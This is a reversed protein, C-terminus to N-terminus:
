NGSRTVGFSESKFSWHSHGKLIQRLEGMSPDWLKITDDDSNSALLQSDSSFAVSQVEGSHGELTQHLEGTSPDWLKITKDQSSSALLQGDPSFAVSQVWASHGELTQRLKGTSPDWLKITEDSSGSALLQGDPSFAVSNVEGSHGELTQRLEGTSPNWLKITKDWSSSALLQSDPSFAISALLQSDPSFAVSQVWDSHGEITQRLEGTSPDWLKITKDWSSSALLQSDPSFAVSRVWNSHGTLTQRLESTSPDWLKITKDRSCSALLQSDPSFAVSRVTGSHGKITQRLEGTSPDWLKITNDWSSSALLQGDPSFAVSQVWASHGELTQYLKGTSPDWLKITKDWSSSALLQSDPSFAVSNVEGSHGKLTLHLKGTSPNWLEGSHGKLTLHLKGTSPNWLKITKDRSCSALLQSDSSFTVSNVEGSHGKLTLHLKGTSPNWLKITKDRSCSALLQSDPLFAAMNVEGSHGELTQRLEGTSPDWLKITYDWSSSALLQSDSSFAVSQVWHSHGEITQHLDGTSPDWLKITNDYSGSALLQGNPSFAVSQVLGSHGELTQLEGSWAKEVKPLRRWTLLESEFSKRIASTKPAFMLGSSYLQLPATNAIQRNMLIFRWADYLFKVIEPDKDNEIVSQLVRIIGVAESIIGLLSMAEMWHLFHVKLFSFAQILENVPDYSQILHHVWYRCAYQLEPPLHSDIIYKNIESRLTTDHHINCINKRLGYHECQMVKLCQTTLKQHVEKESIWFPNGKKVNDLLFDRFSLHLIRVPQDLETPVDLVSHLLNLRVQIKNAEMNVLRTLTNVSLPTVLIIIVGVIDKFEQILQRSEQADQGKLLQNLVPMYTSDMKTVYSTQDTLIARLREEPSWREDSIFRYLTTASIFLPAAREVLTKITMDGPWDPPLSRKSKLKSFGDEFYLKIDREIVPTPIRHLILDQYADAVIEFGLRIPLEPRSTLLFRLQVSNSKQVQPLLRLIVQIDDEQDCEDLADIVIVMLTNPGQDIELVPQLILKEFQERLVRESIDLDDEIARRISPILQPMTNGLHKALTSFLRKADGRDQEGRKFFFSAGLLNQRKLHGAVTRSITSKGTGAMGNLWFICKGNPDKTWNDIDRLLEVRTGPLCETHQNEYDNFASGKAVQLRSLDVKQSLLDTTITQDIELALSFLTKYEVIDNIAKDVETRKLPWKLAHFTWRRRSKQTSDPDIRERLKTLTSSCFAVDSLLKRSTSLESGKSEHLLKNLAGLVVALAKISQQLRIIDEKADKVKGIYTSCIQIITGTLQIVAIVSAAGSLPEM